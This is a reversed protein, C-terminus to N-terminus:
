SYTRRALASPSGGVEVRTGADHKRIARPVHALDLEVVYVHELCLLLRVDIVLLDALLQWGEALACLNIGPLELCKDNAAQANSAATSASEAM